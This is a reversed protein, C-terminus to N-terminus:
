DRVSNHHARKRKDGRKETFSLIEREEKKGFKRIKMNRHLERKRGVGKETIIRDEEIFFEGM